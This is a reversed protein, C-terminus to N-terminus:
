RRPSLASGASFASAVLRIPSSLRSLPESRSILSACRAQISWHAVSANRRPLSSSCTGMFNTVRSLTSKSSYRALYSVNISLTTSLRLADILAAPRAIAIASAKASATVAAAPTTPSRRLLRRRRSTSSGRV